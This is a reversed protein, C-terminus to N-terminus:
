SLSFNDILRTSGIWIAAFIRCNKQREACRLLSDSQRLDYYDIIGFGLSNLKIQADNLAVNVDEGNDILRATEKIQTYLQPALEREKSSLYNNRSSIALGDAERITPHSLICIDIDLDRVMQRIVALQQFDKEGFIAFNAPVHTFLKFVITAVGRFFHPRCKGEMPLAVGGPIIDTAHATHYMNNPAYIADCGGDAAISDLDAEFTRPYSDFDENAKFQTPNVYISVVVRNATKRAKAILALHGSHINGMTPVLCVSEGSRQWAKTTVIMDNSSTIINMQDVYCLNKCEAIPKLQDSCLARM